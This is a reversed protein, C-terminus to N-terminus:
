SIRVSILWDLGIIVSGLQYKLQGKNSMPFSSTISFPYTGIDHPKFAEACYTSLHKALTITSPVHSYQRNITSPFFLYKFIDARSYINLM